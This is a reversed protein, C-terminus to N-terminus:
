IEQLIIKLPCNTFSNEKMRQKQLLILIHYIKKLFVKKRIKLKKKRVEKRKDRKRRERGRLRM